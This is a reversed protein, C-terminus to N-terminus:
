EGLFRAYLEGKEGASRVTFEFRGLKQITKSKRLYTKVSQASTASDYTKVLAWQGPREVLVSLTEPWSFDSGFRPSPPPDKWVVENM